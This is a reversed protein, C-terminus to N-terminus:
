IQFLSLIDEMTFFARAFDDFYRKFFLRYGNNESNVSVAFLSFRFEPYAPNDAYKFKLRYDSNKKELKENLFDIDAQMDLFVQKTFSQKEYGNYCDELKLERVDENM